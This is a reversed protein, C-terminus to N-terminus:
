KSFFHLKWFCVTNTQDGSLVSSQFFKLLLLFMYKRKRCLCQFKYFFSFFVCCAYAAKLSKYWRGSKKGLVFEWHKLHTVYLEQQTNQLALSRYHMQFNAYVEAWTGPEQSVLRHTCALQQFYISSFTPNPLVQHALSYWIMGICRTM